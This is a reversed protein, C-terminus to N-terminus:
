LGTGYSYTGGIRSAWKLGRVSGIAIVWFARDIPPFFASLDERGATEVPFEHTACFLCPQTCGVPCVPLVSVRSHAECEAASATVLFLVNLSFEEEGQGGRWKSLDLM